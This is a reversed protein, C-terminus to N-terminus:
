AVDLGILCSDIINGSFSDSVEQIMENVFADWCM